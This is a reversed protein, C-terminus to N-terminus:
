RLADTGYAPRNSSKDGDTITTPSLVNGVSKSMKKNDGDVVFGHVLLNRDFFCFLM